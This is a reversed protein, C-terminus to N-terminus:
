CWAGEMQELLENEERIDNRNEVSGVILGAWGSGELVGPVPRAKM